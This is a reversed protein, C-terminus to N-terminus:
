INQVDGLKVELRGFACVINNKVGYIEVFHNGSFNIPEVHILSNDNIVSVQFSIIM